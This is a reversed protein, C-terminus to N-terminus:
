RKGVFLFGGFLRNKSSTITRKRPTQRCCYGRGGLLVAGALGSLAGLTGHKVASTARKFCKRIDKSNM